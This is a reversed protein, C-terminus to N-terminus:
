TGKPSDVFRWGVLLGLERDDPVGLARPHVVRSVWTEVLTQKLGPPLAVTVRSPAGSALRTQLVLRGESWVKVDVPREAVDGHNVRVTVTMIRGAVDVLAVARRRAWRHEGGEGDPEPWYFGYSYPWGFARARMPVRLDAVAARATTVAFGVVVLGIAAWTRLTLTTTRAPEVKWRTVYWAAVTWFTLAAPVEQTPMGLLSIAGFAVLMGRVIPAPQALPPPRVVTWGLLFAFTLWGASGLLGLEVVQHRFWNQANDPPLAAGALAPGFLHFSGIGIGSLPYRTVLKAAAAGYGNRNWMEAAFDRFSGGSVGPLTEWVRRVPGAVALGSSALVVLLLCVGGALWWARRTLPRSRAATLAVAGTGTVISAAAFATRSGSAWVTLWLGVLGVGWALSRWGTARELAVLVGGLGMAALVGAVNADFVTGSARGGAAYVTENLFTIDGFLQYVSVAVLAGLSVGLPALVARTVDLTRAGILWDFWLVGLVLTLGVHVTWAASFVPLGSLVADPMPSLLAVNFDIERLVVLPTAIATTLAALVLPGRLRVPVHWSTRLGDPTLAGLLAATWLPYHQVDWSGLVARVLAPVVYAFSLVLAVFRRDFAVLLASTLFLAAATVPTGTWVRGLVTQSALAAGAWVLLVIKSARDM